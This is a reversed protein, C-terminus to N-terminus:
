GAIHRQGTTVSGRSRQSSFILWQATTGQLFAQSGATLVPAPTAPSPAPREFVKKQTLSGPPTTVQPVRSLTLRLHPPLPLISPGKVESPRRRAPCFGPVLPGLLPWVATVPNLPHFAPRRVRKLKWHVAFSTNPCTHGLYDVNRLFEHKTRYGQSAAARPAAPAAVAGAQRRPRLRGRRRDCKSACERELLPLESSPVAGPARAWGRRRPFRTGM